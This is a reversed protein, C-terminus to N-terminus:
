EVRTVVCERVGRGHVASVEFRLGEYEVVEGVHPPRGLLTLVLGSVSEVDEHALEFNFRQGVEDLRVTGAVHLRGGEDEHIPPKAGSGEDIEGVVEEFLDELTVIGATGGHEDIVVAMQTRERRMVALVTDLPATEPVVPLPRADAAGVPEGTALRRLLDKIHIMGAIHDLDGDYVPYRTHAFKRLLARVEEPTAGARLGSVRVRPVMVQGATLDGFEFLDKLMRGADARLAGSQESEHVILELEEPTYFRDVSPQRSIGFVRLAGNALANLAVVVPYFLVLVGIMWPTIWLAARHSYQLALSKPVMEGVVIHVYTLLVVALASATAHAAMWRGTGAAELSGAISAAVVHEGYMGLGVSAVTIGIQATAFFRDQRRPSRLVDRVLRALWHGRSAQHEIAARPAAVLAFEAAVFMGNLLILAAVILWPMASAM